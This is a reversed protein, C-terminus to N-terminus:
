KEPEYNQYERATLSLVVNNKNYEDKVDPMLKFSYKELLARAKANSHHTYAALDKLKLENFAFNLIAFSAESMIGKGQYDPNLDFGIEASDWAENFNWLCISGIMTDAQENLSIVWYYFSGDGVGKRITDIFSVAEKEDKVPDRDVFENVRPDSRLFQIEKWDSHKLERLFLRETHISEIAM